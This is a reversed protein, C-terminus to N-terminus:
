INSIAQFLCFWSFLLLFVKELTPGLILMECSHLSYPFLSEKRIERQELNWVRRGTAAAAATAGLVPGLPGAVVADQGDAALGDRGADGCRGQRGGHRRRRGRRWCEPVLIISSFICEKASKSLKCKLCLEQCKTIFLSWHHTFDNSIFCICGCYKNLLCEPKFQQEWM